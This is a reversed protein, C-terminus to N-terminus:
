IASDMIPLEFWFTSGVGVTSIVGYRFSHADLITKCISLGLGTGIVARKTQATRYYRDWVTDIDDPKIGKGHDAVEVRAVTGLNKVNVIVVKDAGCYNLANNILNYVVQEIQKYDCECTAMDFNKIFKYGLEQKLAFRECVASTLEDVKVPVPKPIYVGAQLRSLDLLDTVLATLRDAEDIIIQAHETHKATEKYPIDRLREAYMKVITLPTRLDHSVNALLERRMNETKEMEDKAKNLADTLVEFEEYGGGEFKVSFDGDALAKADNAVKVIPKSLSRALITGLGVSAVFVVVSCIIIITQIANGSAGLGMDPCTLCFYVTKREAVPVNDPVDVNIPRGTCYIFYNQANYRSEIVNPSNAASTIDSEFIEQFLESLVQDTSIDIDGSYSLTLLEKREQTKDDVAFVLMVANNTRLLPQANHKFMRYDNNPSYKFMSAIADGAERIENKRLTTFVSVYMAFYAVWFIAIILLSLVIFSLWTRTTISKIFASRTPKPAPESAHKVVKDSSFSATVEGASATLEVGRLRAENKQQEGIAVARVKSGDAFILVDNKQNNGVENDPATYDIGSNLDATLAAFDVQQKYRELKEVDQIVQNNNDANIIIDIQNQSNDATIDANKAHAGKVESKDAYQVTSNTAKKTRKSKSSNVVFGESKAATKNTERTNTRTPKKDFKDM